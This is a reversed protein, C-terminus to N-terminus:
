PGPLFAIGTPPPPRHSAMDPFAVEVQGEEAVRVVGLLHRPRLADVLAHYHAGKGHAAGAGALVADAGALHAEEPGLVAIGKRHHPLHLLRQIGVVDHVRALDSSCVDSSWDSIRMEYATKQKFFCFCLCSEVAVFDM